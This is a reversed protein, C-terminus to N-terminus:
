LETVGIPMVNVPFPQVTQVCEVPQVQPRGALMKEFISQLTSLLRILPMMSDYSKYKNEMNRTEMVSQRIM